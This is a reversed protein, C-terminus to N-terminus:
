YFSFCILVNVNIGIKYVRKKTIFVNGPKFDRHVIKASHLKLLGCGIHVLWM